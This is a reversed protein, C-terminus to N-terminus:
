NPSRQWRGLEHQTLACSITLGRVMLQKAAPWDRKLAARLWCTLNAVMLARMATSIELWARVRTGTVESLEDAVSLDYSIAVNSFLAVM